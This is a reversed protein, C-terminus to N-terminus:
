VVRAGDEVNRRLVAGSGVRARAGILVGPEVTVSGEVVTDPGIVCGFDSLAHYGDAVRAECPGALATFRPGIRAGEGVISNRIIAGPGVQVDDLLVSNEIVCNAGLVVNEGLVTTPLLTSQPGIAVDDQILAPCVIDASKAIAPHSPVVCSDALVHGNIGLLDWPYVADMWTGQSRVARVVGRHAIVGELVQPIGLVGAQVATRITDQFGAPLAYVGTSVVESAAGPPKELIRVVRNGELTLVGYKSPNDSAKAVLTVDHPHQKRAAMLDQILRSDVLNDAGLVLVDEKAEVLALAHATGLLADQFAYSIHCGFRRGEEFYSQVKERHYGVVFTLDTIGNAVLAEVAYQMIPKNAVRIMTKPQTATLPRLRSGEGAALLVAKLRGAFPGFGSLPM